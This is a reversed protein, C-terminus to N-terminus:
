SKDDMGERLIAVQKKIEVWLIYQELEDNDDDDDNSNDDDDDDFDDDEDATVGIWEDEGVGEEPSAARHGPSDSKSAISLLAAVFAEQM